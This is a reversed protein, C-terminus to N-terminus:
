FPINGLLKLYADGVRDVTHERLHQQVDTWQDTLLVNKRKVSLMKESLDNVDGRTFVTGLNGIAEPLGGGDVVIPWCGCAMGELAVIGFPEKWLSPVLLYRHRNLEAVLERGSM